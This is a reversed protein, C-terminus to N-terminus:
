VNSLGIFAFLCLGSKYIYLIELDKTLCEVNITEM